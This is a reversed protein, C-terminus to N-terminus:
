NRMFSLAIPLIFHSSLSMKKWREKKTDYKKKQM